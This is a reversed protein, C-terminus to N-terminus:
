PLKKAIILGASSNEDLPPRLDIEFNSKKLLKVLSEPAAHYEVLIEDFKKIIELQSEILSNYECSECDIKLVSSELNFRSDLNKLNTITLEDGKESKFFVPNSNNDYKNSIRIKESKEGLGENLFIVKDEFHNLSINKKAINCKEISPELFIIKSAGNNLFFLATDGVNGGVDVVVKEKVDLESYEKFHYLERLDFFYWKYLKSYPLDKSSVNLIEGNDSLCDKWTKEGTIKVLIDIVELLYNLYQEYNKEIFKKLFFIKTKIECNINVETKNNIELFELVIKSGSLIGSNIETEIKNNIVQHYSKQTISLPYKSFKFKEKTVIITDTKKLIEIKINIPFIKELTKYDILIDIFKSIDNSELKKHFIM